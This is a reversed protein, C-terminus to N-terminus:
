CHFLSSHLLSRTSKDLLRSRWLYICNIFTQIEKKRKTSQGMCFASSIFDNLQAFLVIFLDMSIFRLSQHNFMNDHPFGHPMNIPKSFLTLSIILTKSQRIISFWEFRNLPKCDIKFLKFMQKEYISIWVFQANPISFATVGAWNIHGIVM